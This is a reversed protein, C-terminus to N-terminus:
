TGRGEFISKQAHKTFSSKAPQDLTKRGISCFSFFPHVAVTFREQAPAIEDAAASIYGNALRHRVSSGLGYTVFAPVESDTITCWAKTLTPWFALLDSGIM